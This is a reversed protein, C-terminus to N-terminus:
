APVVPFENVLYRAGVDDAEIERFGPGQVTAKADWPLPTRNPQSGPAPLPFM